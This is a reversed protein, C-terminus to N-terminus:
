FNNIKKYKIFKDKSLKINNIYYYKDSDNIFAYGNERHMEGNKFWIKINNQYDIFAPKDIERHMLGEKYWAEEKVNNSNITKVAPLDNDRHLFGKNFWYLRKYNDSDGFLIISPKDNNRFIFNYKVYILIKGNYLNISPEELEHHIEKNVIWFYCDDECIFKIHEIQNIIHKETKIINLTIDTNLVQKLNNKELLYKLIVKKM